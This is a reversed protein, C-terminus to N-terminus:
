VIVSWSLRELFQKVSIVWTEGPVSSCQLRTLDDRGWPIQNLRLPFLFFSFFCVFFVCRKAVHSLKPVHHSIYTAQGLPRGERERERESHAPLEFQWILYLMSAWNWFAELAGESAVTYYLRPRCDWRSTLQAYFNSHVKNTYILYILVVNISVPFPLQSPPSTSSSQLTFNTIEKELLM